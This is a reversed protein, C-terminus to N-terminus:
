LPSATLLPCKIKTQNVGGVRLGMKGPHVSGGGAKHQGAIVFATDTGAGFVHSRFEPCRWGERQGKNGATIDIMERFELLNDGNVSM